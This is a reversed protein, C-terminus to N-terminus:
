LRVLNLRPDDFATAMSESFFKKSVDCVMEDIECMVINEVGDHKVVERLVGGDGVWEFLVDTVNLVIVEAM